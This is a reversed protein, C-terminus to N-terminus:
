DGAKVDASYLIAPATGNNIWYHSIGKVEEALDGAKHLIPKACTSRYETIEGSATLILAPRGDHSHLPVIGGPQVVLKRLRLKHGPFDIQAGLDLAGLVDDTVAKPSTPAGALAMTGAAACDAAAAPVAGIALAAAAVSLAAVRRALAFTM